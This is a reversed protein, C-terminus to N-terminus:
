YDSEVASISDCYDQYFSELKSIKTERFQNILYYLSDNEQETLKLDTDPPFSFNIETLKKDLVDRLSDVSNSDRALIIKNKFMVITEASKYFLERAEPSNIKDERKVCSSFAIIGLVLILTGAKM